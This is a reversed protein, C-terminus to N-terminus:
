PARIPRRRCAAWRRTGSGMMSSDTPLFLDGDKGTPLLNRFVVRVARDKTAGIIPGLYQPSTVAFRGTSVKTGDLLENFLEVHQSIAQNAPTELQVYGRTLTPSLDSSFRTRYQVLAIEFTDADPYTSTDPVAVPLFKAGAATPCGTASAPDCPVPLQDQFKKIGKTLYGAGSNTVQIATIAGIDTTAGAQAGTGSGRPDTVTVTPVSTYGAGFDVPDIAVLKLTTSATAFTAGAIPDYM